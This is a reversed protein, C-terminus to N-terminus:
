AAMQLLPADPSGSMPAPDGEPPILKAIRHALAWAGNLEILNNETPAMAFDTIARELTSAFMHFTDRSAMSTAKIAATRLKLVLEM